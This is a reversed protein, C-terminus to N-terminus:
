QELIDGFERKLRNGNADYTFREKIQGPYMVEQLRNLADYRYSTVNENEEKLIQNGNGDYAYRYMIMEKGSPDMNSLRTIKKNYILM